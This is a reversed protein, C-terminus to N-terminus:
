PTCSLPLYTNPHICYVCCIYVCPCMCARYVSYGYEGCMWVAFGRLVVQEYVVRDHEVVCRMNDFWHVGVVAAAHSKDDSSTRVTQANNNNCLVMVFGDATGAAIVGGDRQGVTLCCVDQTVPFVRQPALPQQLDWVCLLTSPQLPSAPQAM